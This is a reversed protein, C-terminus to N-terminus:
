QISFNPGSRPINSLLKGTSLTDKEYLTRYLAKLFYELSKELDSLDAM